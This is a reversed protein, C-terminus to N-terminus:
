MEKATFIKGTTAGICSIAETSVANNEMVFSAGAILTFSPQSAVATTTFNCWMATDSSNQILLYRRTANAAMITQATGGSTITGSRDTLTGTSGSVPQNVASGDVKWATTNATNGPQVTWTGSQTVPVLTSMIGRTSSYFEVVGATTGASIGTVNIRFYRTAIPGAFIRNASTTSVSMGAGAANAPDVLTLSTWNTNDNSGQFTITSSTGQTVSHVSVWSYNSVDTSAVAQATTTTYSVEKRAGAILRANQGSDGSLNNAKTTGDNDSVLWPTTNATNGPQVTWTGSQVANSTGNTDLTNFTDAGFSILPLIALIYLLKKM